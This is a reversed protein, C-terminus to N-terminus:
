LQNFKSVIKVLRWCKKKSFPKSEMIQVKDGINCQNDQDHAMIKTTKKVFKGYIPHKVKLSIAIVITKDGKNSIVQGIRTKRQNRIM